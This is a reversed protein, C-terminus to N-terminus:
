QEGLPFGDLDVVSGLLFLLAPPDGQHSNGRFWPCVLRGNGKCAVAEIPNSAPSDIHKGALLM